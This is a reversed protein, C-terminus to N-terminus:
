RNFLLNIFRRGGWIVALPVAVLLFGSAIANFVDVPNMSSPNFEVRSNLPGSQGQPLDCIPIYKYTPLDNLIGTSSYSIIYLQIGLETPAAARVEGVFSGVPFWRNVSSNFAAVAVYPNEYCYENVLYGM